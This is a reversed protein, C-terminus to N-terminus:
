QEEEQTAREFMGLYSPTASPLVQAAQSARRATRGSLQAVNGVARPSAALGSIVTSPSLLSGGLYSLGGVLGSGLIRGQLGRPVYSSLEQGALQPLFQKAGPLQELQQALNLRQGYNTSVGDRMSTLLSKLAKEATKKDGVDLAKEIEQISKTAEEYSKMVKEYNPDATNIQKKVEDALEKIKARATGTHNMAESNLTRKLEDFDSISKYGQKEARALIQAASNAAELVKADTTRLTQLDNVMSKITGLNLDVDKLNAKGSLYSQKRQEYLINLNYRANAVAELPDAKGTLNDRFNKLAEGGEKGAKYAQEIAERGTGSTFALTTAVAPGLVKKTGVKAVKGAGVLGLTIPDIRSAYKSVQELAAPVRALKAGRGAKAANAIVKAAITSGGSITGALDALFGASDTAITRKINEIGGYRDAFYEGVASALQQSEEDEGIMQVVDDPLVNQLIGYGLQGVTKATEIPSTVADWLAQAERKASSGFGSVAESAVEGLGVDTYDKKPTPAVIPDETKKYADPYKQEILKKIEADSQDARFLGIKGDPLRVRKNAM